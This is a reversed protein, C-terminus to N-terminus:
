RKVVADWDRHLESAHARWEADPHRTMIREVFERARETHIADAQALLDGPDEWVQPQCVLDWAQRSGHRFALAAAVRADRDDLGGGDSLVPLLVRNLTPLHEALDATPLRTVQRFLYNVYDGHGAVAERELYESRLLAELAKKHPLWCLTELALIREEEPRDMDSMIEVLYDVGAEGCLAFDVTLEVADELGGLFGAKSNTLYNTSGIGWRQAVTADGPQQVM